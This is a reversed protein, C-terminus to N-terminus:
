CLARNLHMETKTAADLAMLPSPHVKTVQAPPSHPSGPHHLKRSARLGEKRQLSPVPLPCSGRRGKTRKGKRDGRLSLHWHQHDHCRVGTWCRHGLHQDSLRIHTLEIYYLLDIGNAGHRSLFKLCLLRGLAQKQELWATPSERTSRVRTSIPASSLIASEKLPYTKRLPLRNGGSQTSQGGM